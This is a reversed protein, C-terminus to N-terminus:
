LGLGKAIRAEPSLFLVAAVFADFDAASLDVNVFRDKADTLGVPKNSRTKACVETVVGPALVRMQTVNKFDFEVRERRLDLEGFEQAGKPDKAFEDFIMTGDRMELYRPSSKDLRVNSSCLGQAGDTKVLSKALLAEAKPRDLTSRLQQTTEPVQYTSACGSALLCLLAALLRTFQMTTGKTM